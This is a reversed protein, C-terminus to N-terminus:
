RSIIESIIGNKFLVNQKNYYWLETSTSDNTEVYEIFNPFGKSLECEIPTMGEVIKEDIIMGWNEKRVLTNEFYGLWVASKKFDNIMCYKTNLDLCNFPVIIHRKDPLKLIVCVTSHNLGHPRRVFLGKVTLQEGRLVKLPENYKFDNIKFEKRAIFKTDVLQQDLKEYYGEITFIWNDNKKPYAYFFVKDTYKLQLFYQGNKNIVDQVTLYKKKLIDHQTRKPNKPCPQYTKMQELDKYFGSFGQDRLNEKLEPVIINQGILVEPNLPYNSLSDYAESTISQNEITEDVIVFSNSIWFTLLGLLIPIYKSSILM